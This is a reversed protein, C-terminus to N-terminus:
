GEKGCYAERWRPFAELTNAVTVKEVDALPIGKLEALAQAVLMTYAPENPHGRHPVPTIFPADTEVLLRALPVARAIARINEGNKFTIWGAIGIYLRQAIEVAVDAEVSCCHWAGGFAAGGERDLIQLVDDVAEREHIIIPLGVEAALALQRAFAERQVPRPSHDYHYDLGIEGYAVVEPNAALNRLATLTEADLDKSEHPHMGIAARLHQPFRRALDVAVRSSPLDYGVVLAGQVGAHVMHDVLADVQPLLKPDNLHNHADLM